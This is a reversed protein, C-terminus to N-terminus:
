LDLSPGSLDMLFQIQFPLNYGPTYTDTYQSTDIVFSLKRVVRNTTVSKERENSAGWLSGM